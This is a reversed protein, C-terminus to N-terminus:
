KQSFCEKRLILNKKAFITFFCVFPCRNGAVNDYKMVDEMWSEGVM